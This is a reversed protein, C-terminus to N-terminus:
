SKDFVTVSDLIGLSCSRSLFPETWFSQHTFIQGEPHFPIPIETGKFESPVFRGSREPILRAPGRLRRAQTKAPCVRKARLMVQRRCQPDWRSGSRGGGHKACARGARPLGPSSLSAAGLLVAPSSRGRQPGRGAARRGGGAATAGARGPLM